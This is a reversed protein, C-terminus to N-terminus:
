ELNHYEYWPKESEYDCFTFLESLVEVTTSHPSIVDSYACIEGKAQLEDLLPTTPLYYGYLHMHNRNTSEGLIFVINKITSENETLEINADVADALRHYAIANEVALSTASVIRAAPLLECFFFEAYYPLVYAFSILGAAM